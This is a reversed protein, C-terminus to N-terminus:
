FEFVDDNTIFVIQKILGWQTNRFLKVYWDILTDSIIKPRVSYLHALLHM